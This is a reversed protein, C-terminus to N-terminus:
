NTAKMLLEWKLNAYTLGLHNVHPLTTKRQTCIASVHTANVEQSCMQQVGEGPRNPARPARPASGGPTSRRPLVAAPGPPTEAGGARTCGWCSGDRGREGRLGSGRSRLGM